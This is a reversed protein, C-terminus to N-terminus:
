AIGPVLEPLPQGKGALPAAEAAVDIADLDRTDVRM